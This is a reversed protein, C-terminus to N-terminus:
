YNNHLEQCADSIKDITPLCVADGDVGYAVRADIAHIIKVPAELDFLSEGQTILSSITPGIGGVFRDETVILVRGCDKATKLIEDEDLPRITRLDVVRVNIGKEALIEASRRAMQVTAGFTIIGIDTAQENYVQAKGFPILEDIDPYPSEIPLGEWDRRNYLAVSECYLVPDDCAWATKLLGAADHANSPTVIILGPINAWTGLNAESHWFSGAGQKYGGFTCRITLPMIFQGGSRQHTTAIQDKLGQYAPSMYDLFQVEPIPRRGQYAHGTARGLISAEDLPTNFCRKNGFERQLNKTVLFVGGKGRLDTGISKEIMAGSFDAVDEGFTIVDTTMHFLDFLTYNIASRMTMPGIKEPIDPKPFYGKKHYEAFKKVRDVKSADRYKKWVAQCNEFSYTQVLNTVQEATKPVFTEVAEASLRSIETDLEDWMASIEESTVVGAEVLTRSSKLICDNNTHWDAEDKTMYFTQDDSGSHSGERTVRINLLCPGQGSRTYEIAEQAKALSDKLDTGDMQIIKLGFRQYGEFPTTPDGEPFQEEVSVSIAWGCNYIAFISRAKFFAANFVARAFEPESTSGEGIACMSIADKPYAGGPHHSQASVPVGFDIAEGIGAAELAHSGTPSSQPLIGLEPISPHAPIQQGKTRARSDGIAELMKEWLSSGRHIDFAKNRYYGLFPDNTRLNDAFAVDALEKGGCGIFFRNYGKRLLLKEEREVRRAALMSRLMNKLQAPTKGSFEKLPADKDPRTKPGNELHGITEILALVEM